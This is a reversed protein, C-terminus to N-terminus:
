FNPESWYVKEYAVELNKTYQETDFLPTSLRNDALKKTISSLLTKNTALELALDEYEKETSTILEPLEIANLFSSACRAVFQEGKKTIIPLGAWLSYCATSHANFNFTDLFLDALRHRALHHETPVRQAFVLRSPDVGRQEAEKQLNGKAWQNPEKLWLVSGEVKDLLRMWIDFERPTIKYNNNFCCFVFGDEPLGMDKRTMVTDSIEKTNDTPMYTHPLYIIKEQYYEKLRDPIVTHDAIVYDMFKAGMTGEYLYLIQVPAARFAFINTRAKGTYGMLDIAIDIKDERALLAVDKDSLNTVDKFHDVSDIIRKRMDDDAQGFSYAYVEIKSKDHLALVRALQYSVPHEHFDASFYGIRLKDNESKSKHALPIPDVNYNELAHKSARISQREPHDDISLFSFPNISPTTIGLNIIDIQTQDFGSWDCIQNLLFLRECDANFFDPQYEIAKDYYILASQYEKQDQLSNAKNYYADAYNPNLALAKDFAIISEDLRKEERLCTGKNNYAEANNPNIKIAHDFNQIAQPYKKQDTFVSGLNSYAEVFEPNLQIAKTLTREAEPYNKLKNFVVGLNNYAEFYNPNINIAKEYHPIAEKYNKQEKLANGLNNYAEAFDPKVKIAYELLKQAEEYQKLDILINALNNNATPSSPNLKLAEKFHFLAQKTQGTHSLCAGLVNHLAPTEPYTQILKQAQSLTAQVDGKQYLSIVQNVLDGPAKKSNPEQPTHLMYARDGIGERM